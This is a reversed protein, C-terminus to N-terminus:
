PERPVSAGQAQVVRWGGDQFLWTRTYYMEAEFPEGGAFGAMRLRARTVGTSGFQRATSQLRESRTLRLQGSSHSELDQAKGFEAGDPAVYVVDPHLLSDLAAVDGALQARQLETEAAALSGDAPAPEGMAKYDVVDRLKRAFAAPDNDPAWENAAFGGHDGPFVVPETGLLGALAEGGRRAMTGAGEAGIAPVIRVGSAKLAAADPTYPPMAMNYALLADDRAGDDEAPLGFQAPDPDPQELYDAPFPGSHTVMRIFKAMAPGFGRRQYTGVIDANIKLVTEADALLAGLPPEHAVLTRLDDPHDVAWPLAVMAGGSSGFADVPGLGVAEVVRHLDDGHLEATVGAGDKLHSRETMRPDYTIVVRDDFHPAVQEFGSAGMPSGFIFLPPHGGPRDPERIDYTLVAGPVDLTHTTTTPM